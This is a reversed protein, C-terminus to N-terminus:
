KTKFNRTKKKVKIWPFCHNAEIEDLDLVDTLTDSIVGPSASVSPTKITTSDDMTNNTAMENNDINDSGTLAKPRMRVTRYKISARRNHKLSGRKTTTQNVIKINSYKNNLQSSNSTSTTHM